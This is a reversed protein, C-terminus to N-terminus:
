RLIEMQAFLHQIEPDDQKGGKLAWDRAWDM